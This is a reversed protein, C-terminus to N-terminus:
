FDVGAGIRWSVYRRDPSGISWLVDTRMFGRESGYAKFGVMVVGRTDGHTEIRASQPVNLVPEFTGDPRRVGSNFTQQPTFEDDRMRDYAIGGGVFPHFFQNEGFQYLVRASIPVGTERHETRVFPPYSQGPLLRQEYTQFESKTIFGTEFETKVNPTWYYGVTGQVVFRADWDHYVYEEGTIKVGRWGMVGSVDWRPLPPLPEQAEARSAALTLLTILSAATLARTV